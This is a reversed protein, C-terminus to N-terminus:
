GFVYAFSTAFASSALLRSFSTHIPQPVSSPCNACDFLKDSNRVAFLTFCVNRSVLPACVHITHRRYKCSIEGNNNLYRLFIRFVSVNNKTRTTINVAPELWCSACRPCGFRSRCYVSVTRGNVTFYQM